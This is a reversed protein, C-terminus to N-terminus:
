CFFRIQEPLLVLCYAWLYTWYSCLTQLQLPPHGVHRPHDYIRFTRYAQMKPHGVNAPNAFTPDPGFARVKSHANSAAAATEAGNAALQFILPAALV